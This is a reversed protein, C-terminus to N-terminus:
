LDFREERLAKKLDEENNAWYKINDINFTFVADDINPFRIKYDKTPYNPDTKNIEIRKIQGTGYADDEIQLLVYNGVQPEGQNINTEFIEFNTIM